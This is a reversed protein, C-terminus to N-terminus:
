INEVLVTVGMGKLASIIRNQTETATSRMKIFSIGKGDHSSDQNQISFNPTECHNTNTHEHNVNNVHHVSYACISTGNGNGNDNTDRYTHTDMPPPGEQSEQADEYKNISNDRSIVHAGGGM